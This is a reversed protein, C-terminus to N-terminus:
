LIRFKCTVQSRREEPTNRLTSHYVKVSTEPCHILDMKLPWSTWHLMPSRSGQLHSQYTTRFHQYLNVMRHQMLDWFACIEDVYRRFGSIVSQLDNRRFIWHLAHVLIAVLFSFLRCIDDMIEAIDKFGLSTKLVKNGYVWGGGWWGRLVWRDGWKYTCMDVWLFM